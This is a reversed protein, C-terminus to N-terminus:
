MPALSGAGLMSGDMCVPSAAAVGPPNVFFGVGVCMEDPFEISEDTTNNWECHTHLTDGANMVMPTDLSWESFVLDFQMEPDWASDRHVDEVTGDSRTLETYADAGYTHMHNAFRFFEYDDSLTCTADATTKAAPDLTFDLTINVFMSAVSRSPDVEDFKFDLATQGDITDTGTNLFHTNLMISSGKPMRFVVGEPLKAAPDGTEGGVGGLFTGIQTNDDRNCPRSTGVPASSTVAYAVAHHGYKSQFGKVDLVDMDRDFPAMVYQCLLVDGGPPVDEVVPAIVRKYGDPVPPMMSGEALAGGDDAPASRDVPASNSDDMAPHSSSGCAPLLLLSFPVFTAFHYRM